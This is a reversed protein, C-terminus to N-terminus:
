QSKRQNKDDEDVKGFFQADFGMEHFLRANTESHGYANINWGVKPVFDFEKKLFQHGAM